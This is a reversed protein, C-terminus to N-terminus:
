PDIRQNGAYVNFSGDRLFGVLTQGSGRAFEVALSSPASIGAVLPIGAALSKQMLEFSIRGSLLLISSCLPMRQDLLAQGIIKDLANHRGVDERIAQLEGTPSFLACAHQGGTHGFGQQNKRLTAPLTLLKAATISVLNDPLAPLTQFVSEITTKGCVGCSSSTFVHRTLQKLNANVGKRLLIDVMNGSPQGEPAPPPNQCESIEFIDDSHHIINETFLFGAALERDHGPTRMLVAVGRGEVRLELPDEVAVLDTRPSCSFSAAAGKGTSTEWRHLDLAQIPDNKLAELDEPTNLNLFLPRESPTVERAVVLGDALAEDIFGQLSLKGEALHQRAKKLLSRPYVAALPEWRGDIRPVIGCAKKEAQSVMGNLFPATIRPLDVALLLLWPAPSKELCASLGALPGRDAATDPVIEVDADLAPFEQGPRVSLLIALPSVQRLKELQSQYLPGANAQRILLSKDEGMRSSKGGVLLACATQDSM